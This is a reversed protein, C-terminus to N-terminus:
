YRVYPELLSRLNVKAKLRTALLFLGGLKRHLFLADIPPTHWYNHQMSLAMGKESIRDAMDSSAFCYDDNSKLPECAIYFLELVKEKQEQSIEDSFYGLDEAATAILQHNDNLMGTLLLRYSDM